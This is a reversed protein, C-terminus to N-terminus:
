ILLYRTHYCLQVMMIKGSTVLELQLIVV